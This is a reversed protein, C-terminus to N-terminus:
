YLVQNMREKVRKNGFLIFIKLYLHMKIKESEFFFVFRVYIYYIDYKCYQVSFVFNMWEQPQKLGFVFKIVIDYPVNTRHAYKEKATQFENELIDNTNTTTFFYTWFFYVLVIM